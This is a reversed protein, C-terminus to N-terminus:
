RELGQLMRQIRQELTESSVRDRLREVVLPFAFPTYRDPTKVIWELSQLRTVTEQLRRWDLQRDLVEQIAQLLLRNGPDFEQFVDFFLNSAAQLHRARKPQGPYGPHILGAIRAIERFQRKAMETGNVTAALDEDITEGTLLQRWDDAELSVNDSTELLIGFDNVAISVTQPTRNALRQGLIAGLGEHVLRGEFPFFCHQRKGRYRYSEVLCQGSDPVGSRDAQLQLLDKLAQMEPGLFRGVSAQGLLQRIGFSLESSLPLRGGMWAPVSSVHKSTLRVWATGERLQVLELARGAFQFRQGPHFRSIFREEVSGVRKGNLFKVEVAMDSSITGISMRHRRAVQRSAVSYLGNEQVVRHFEPYATLSDGGHVVFQFIWQLQDDSIGQFSYTSRIEERFDEYRYGGALAMSVAHQALCDGPSVPPHRSELRTGTELIRRASALELLELVSTPAFVLQCHKGPAHQSRGARQVLRAAGKPSGVQVVQQVTPFDVGLDLSSTCVVALLKGARVADEVWRRTARDLSGHHLALRGAWGPRRALLGQYWREAQNRTNTFVLTTACQQIVEAVQECMSLGLHGAWPFKQISEPLLSRVQIPRPAAGRILRRKRKPDSGALCALAEELNGLTASLGARVATPALKRLRALALETQTGRKSGMLEHWEDIIIAQLSQFQQFSEPYSLLLTLSEPTTILATPLRKRQRQRVSSTTDGTRTELTWPLSLDQLPLRLAAETDSALARLPTIWLVTLPPGYSSRTGKKGATRKKGSESTLNTGQRKLYNRVPGMWAAYTKGSGTSSHLLYDTGQEFSRWCSRQFGFPKWGKRQFWADVVSTATQGSTSM